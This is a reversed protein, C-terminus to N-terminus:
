GVYEQEKKPKVVPFMVPPPLQLDDALAIIKTLCRKFIVNLIPVAIEEPLRKNKKWEKLVKENDNAQYLLEGVLNISGIDPEYTTKFEFEIALIKKPLIDIKKEDISKIMPTSNVSINSKEEIEKKVGNVSKFTLGLVTICIM